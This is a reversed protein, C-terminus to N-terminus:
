KRMENLKREIYRESTILARQIRRAYYISDMVEKNKEALKHFAEDVIIKQAEIITKQKQTIRFRNIVFGLGVLVVGLGVLLSYRQFKEQKIQANQAQLQADKVKQQEANKVSDATARKEYEYKLANKISAKKTAINNISDRMLIFLEYNQLAYKHNGTAKYIHNLREAANRINEPYGIEKSVKM